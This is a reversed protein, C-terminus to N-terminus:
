TPSTLRRVEATIAARFAPMARDVAPSLGAGLDASAAGIGVFSGVPGRGRLARVLGFVQGIPLEHSSRPSADSDARGAPQGLAELPVVVVAGPAVGVAADVLVCAAGPPIDLLTEIDLAAGRRVECRALVAAPLGDIAMPGAADDGREPEGCVVLWVSRRVTM